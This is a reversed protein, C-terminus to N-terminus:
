SRPRSIRTLFLALVELVRLSFGLSIKLSNKEKSLGKKFFENKKERLKECASPSHCDRGRM